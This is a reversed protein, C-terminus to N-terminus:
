SAFTYPVSAPLTPIGFNSQYPVAHPKTQLKKDDDGGVRGQKVSPDVDFITSRMTDRSNRPAGSNVGSASSPKM